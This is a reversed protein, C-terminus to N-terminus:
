KAPGTQQGVPTAQSTESQSSTITQATLAAVLTQLIKAIEPSPSTLASLLSAHDSQSTSSKQSHVSQASRPPAKPKKTRFTSLSGTSMFGDVGSDNIQVAANPLGTLDVEILWDSYETELNGKKVLKELEADAMTIVCKSEPDWWADKARTLADATFFKHLKDAPLIGGWLGKLFVLLGAIVERASQSKSPHFRFIFTDKVVMKSVSHFLLESPKEPDPINMLVYRLSTRLTRDELDITSLEWTICTQSHKLFREQMSRLCKAKEKARVNTLQKYDRVLRMKIGLPFTTASSSYLAEIRAKYAPPDNKNIEIHLAKIPEAQPTSPVTASTTTAPKDGPKKNEYTRPTGDDIARFRVSVTVGTFQWIERCLADKDYEDVSYLLWGLCISEEAAQLPREWMGQDTAKLWWGINAFIKSPPESFGFFIHPHCTGGDKHIYVKNAYIRLNSLMGPLEEPKTLAPIRQRRDKEEWPYIVVTPDVAKIKQFFQLIANRTHIVPDEGQPVQPVKLRVDYKVAYTRTPTPSVRAPPDSRVLHEVHDITPIGPVTTDNLATRMVAQLWADHRVRWEYPAVKVPNYDQASTPFTSHDTDDDNDADSPHEQTENAKPEPFLERNVVTAVSTTDSDDNKLRKQEPTSTEPSGPNPEQISVNYPVRARKKQDEQDIEMPKESESTALASAHEIEVTSQDLISETPNKRQGEISTDSSDSLSKKAWRRQRNRGMTLPSLQSPSLPHEPDASSQFHPPFDLPKM